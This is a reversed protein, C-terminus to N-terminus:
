LRWPSFRPGARAAFPGSGPTAGPHRWAVPGPYPGSKARFIWLKSLACERHIM